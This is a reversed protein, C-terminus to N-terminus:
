QMNQLKESLIKFKYAYSESERDGIVSLYAERARQLMLKDCQYNGVLTAPLIRQRKSKRCIIEGGADGSTEAEVGTENGTDNIRQGGDGHVIPEM